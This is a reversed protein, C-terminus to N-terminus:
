EICCRRPIGYSVLKKCSWPKYRNTSYSKCIGTVKKLTISSDFDEWGLTSYLSTIEDPTLDLAALDLTVAFRINDTPHITSIHRYLCPRLLDKLYTNPNGFVMTKNSEFPTWSSYDPIVDFEYEFDTLEPANRYDIVTDYTHPSKLHLIIDEESMTLFDDPPLYTCYNVNYPPRLTNPVRTIRRVDGCIQPDPAIIGKKTRFAPVVKGSPSDYMIQKFDGFVSKIISYHARLLRIKSQEKHIQPKMILYLHIRCNNGSAVPICQYGNKDVWWKFMKKSDKLQAGYDNDYFLKNILFNSGYLSTYVNCRGNNNIVESRFQKLSYVPKRWPFAIERPFNPFLQKTLEDM